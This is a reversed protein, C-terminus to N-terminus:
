LNKTIDNPSMFAGAVNISKIFLTNSSYKSLNTITKISSIKTHECVISPWSSCKFITSSFNLSFFNYESSCFRLRPGVHLHRVHYTLRRGRRDLTLQPMSKGHRDLVSTTFRYLLVMDTMSRRPVNPM